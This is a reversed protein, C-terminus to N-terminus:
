PVQATRLPQGLLGHAESPLNEVTPSLMETLIWSSKGGKDRKRENQVCGRCKLPNWAWFATHGTGRSVGHLREDSKEQEWSTM